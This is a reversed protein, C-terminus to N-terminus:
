SSGAGLRLIASVAIFPFLPFPAEREKQPSLLLFVAAAGCAGALMRCFSDLSFYLALSALLKIDAGGPVTKGFVALLRRILLLVGTFLASFLVQPLAPATEPPIFALLGPILCHVNPVRFFRIDRCAGDTLLFLFLVEKLRDAASPHRLSSVASATLLLLLVFLDEPFRGASLRDPCCFLKQDPM